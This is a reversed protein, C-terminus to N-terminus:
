ISEDTRDYFIEESMLQLTNTAEFFKPKNNEYVMQECFNDWHQLWQSDGSLTELADKSARIPNKNYATDNKKFIAIDKEIIDNILSKYKGSLLSKSQLQHLDYIHRVLHKDTDREKEQRNAIRRTLAVWKEAATEDLSLCPTHVSHHACEQGLTTKILSTIAATQPALLLEGVFCDIAIHPKLYTIRASGEYSARISMFRGEYFVKIQEKAISFGTNKLTDVLTYRFDRLRKRRVEKGLHTADPKLVIRFDIDESLRNIVQHGKSLSTGGQFILDFYPDKVSSLIQIALTVYYDKIIFDAPIRLMKATKKVQIDLLEGLM